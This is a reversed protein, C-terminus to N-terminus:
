LTHNKFNEFGPMYGRAILEGTIIGLIWADMADLTPVIENMTEFPDKSGVIEKAALMMRGIRDLNNPCDKKLQEEINIM